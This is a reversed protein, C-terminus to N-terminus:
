SGGSVEVGDNTVAASRQKGDSLDSNSCLVFQLQTNYTNELSGTSPSVHGLAASLICFILFVATGNRLIPIRTNGSHM